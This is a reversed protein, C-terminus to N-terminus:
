QPDILPGRFKDSVGVYGRYKWSDPAGLTSQISLSGEYPSRLVPRLIYLFLLTHVLMLMRDRVRRNM